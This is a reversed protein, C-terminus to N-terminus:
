ELFTIPEVKLEVRAGIPPQNFLHVISGESWFDFQVEVGDVEVNLYETDDDWKLPQIYNLRRLHYPTRGIDTAAIYSATM